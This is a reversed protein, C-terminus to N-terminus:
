AHTPGDLVCDTGSSDVQVSLVAGQPFAAVPDSGEGHLYLIGDSFQFSTAEKVQRPYPSAAEIFRVEIM